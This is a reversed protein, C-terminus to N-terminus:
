REVVVGYEALIEYFRARAVGWTFGEDQAKQADSMAEGIPNSVDWREADEVADSVRNTPLGQSVAIFGIICAASGDPLLNYCSGGEGVWDPDRWFQAVQEGDVRGHPYRWDEGREAVAAEIGAIVKRDVESLEM